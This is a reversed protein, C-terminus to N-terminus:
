FFCTTIGALFVVCIVNCGFYVGIVIDFVSWNGPCLWSWQPDLQYIGKALSIHGSNRHSFFQQSQCVGVKGLRDLGVSIKCSHGPPGWTGLWCSGAEMSRCLFHSACMCWWYYCSIFISVVVPSHLYGEQGAYLGFSRIYWLWVHNAGQFTWELLGLAWFTYLSCGWPIM